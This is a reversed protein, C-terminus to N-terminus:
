NRETPIAATFRLLVRRTDHRASRDLFAKSDSVPDMM